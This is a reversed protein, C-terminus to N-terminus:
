AKSALVLSSIALGARDLGLYAGSNPLNFSKSISCRAKFFTFCNNSYWCKSMRLSMQHEFNYDTNLHLENKEVGTKILCRHWSLVTKKGANTDLVRQEIVWSWM